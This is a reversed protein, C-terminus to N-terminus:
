EDKERQSPANMRKPFSLIYVFLFSLPYTFRFVPPPVLTKTLHRAQEDERRLVKM